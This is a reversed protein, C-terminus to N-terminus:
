LEHIALKRDREAVDEIFRVQKYMKKHNEEIRQAVLKKENPPLADYVEKAIKMKFDIPISNTTAAGTVSGTGKANSRSQPDQAWRAM